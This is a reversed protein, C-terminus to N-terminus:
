RSDGICCAISGATISSSRGHTRAATAPYSFVTTSSISSMGAPVSPKRMEPFSVRSSYKWSSSGTTSSSSRPSFTLKRTTASSSKWPRSEAASHSSTFAAPETPSLCRDAQSRMATTVSLSQIRWAILANPHSLGALQPDELGVLEVGRLGPDAAADLPRAPPVDRLTAAFAEIEERTYPTHRRRDGPPDNVLGTGDRWAQAPRIPRPQFSGGCNPCVDHLM